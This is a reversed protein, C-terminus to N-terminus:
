SDARYQSLYSAASRYIGCKLVAAVMEVNEITPPYPVLKWKGLAKVIFIRHSGVGAISSDTYRGVRVAALAADPEAETEM